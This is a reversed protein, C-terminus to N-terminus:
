TLCLLNDPNAFTPAPADELAPHAESGLSPPERARAAASPRGPSGTRGGAGQVERRGRSGNTPTPPCRRTAGTGASRAPRTSSGPSTAPRPSCSACRGARSSRRGTAGAGRRSTTRAPRSSTSTPPATRSRSRAAASRSRARPRAPERSVDRAPVRLADPGADPDRRREVPPHRLRASGRGDALEDGRLALHPRQGASTSRGRWRRRASTAAAGGDAARAPRGSTPDVFHGLAGPESFDVLANLLTASRVRARGAKTRALHGLMVATLTAGLCLSAM